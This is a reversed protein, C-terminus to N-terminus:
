LRAIFFRFIFGCYKSLGFHIYFFFFFHVFSDLWFRFSFGLFGFYYYLPKNQLHSFTYEFLLLIYILLIFTVIQKPEMLFLM